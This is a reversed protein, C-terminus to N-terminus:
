SVERAAHDSTLDLAIDGLMDEQGGVLGRRGVEVLPDHGDVGNLRRATRSHVLLRQRGERQTSPGPSTSYRVMVRDTTSAVDHRM